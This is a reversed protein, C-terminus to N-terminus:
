HIFWLFGHKYFLQLISSKYLIWFGLKVSKRNATEYGKQMNVSDPGSARM